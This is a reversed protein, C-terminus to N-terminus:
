GLVVEVQVTAGPPALPVLDGEVDRGDVRLSRV